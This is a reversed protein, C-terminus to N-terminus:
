SPNKYLTDEGGKGNKDFFGIIEHFVHWKGTTADYEVEDSGFETPKTDTQFAAIGDLWISKNPFTKQILNFISKFDNTLEDKHGNNCLILWYEYGRVGMFAHIQIDVDKVMVDNVSWVFDMELGDIKLTQFHSNLYNQLETINTPVVNLDPLTRDIDQTLFGKLDNIPVAFNLEQSDELSGSTIGIVRAQENILVGGSSGPSIPASIQIYKQSKITRSNCSILGDSLTNELGEPCGITYIKDGTNISNSDGLTVAALGTANIGLVAIDRDKDYAFIKNVDYSTGNPLYVKASQAGKIVHYNTVIKGNSDVVFGSGSAYVKGSSNYVNIYVVSPSVLQSVQSATYSKTSSDDTAVPTVTTLVTSSLGQIVSDPIIGNGGFIYVNSANTLRQQYYNKTDTPSNNNILIIPESLKACYATGTLADAFGKGTAICINDSKFDSNFKQNVAINRAYKDSGLIREPNPFQSSVYNDIVDSYGVIYTKNVKITAIYHKVSDPIYDRPVLVIPIQKMAAIPAVSLADSYDEGTCVFIASPTTIKEAIKIATEYKDQGAIRTPSMGMSQLESDISSSIVGTGGIIIVNKVQLDVLAQKTSNPLSSSITLLIPANYKQALPTAALADPYNEGYALIAYDSQSWGSKAIKSATEYRDFGALRTTTSSTAYASISLTFILILTLLLSYIIVSLRNIKKM